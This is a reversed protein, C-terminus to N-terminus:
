SGAQPKVSSCIKQSISKYVNELQSGDPANFFTDPSSAIDRMLTLGRTEGFGFIGISYITVGLNKIEDIPNPNQLRPDALPGLDINGPINPLGDSVFILFFQRDPFVAKAQILTDRARQLGEITNTGGNPIIGNISPPIIDKVDKYFSVPVLTRTGIYSSFSEIGIVSEDSMAGTFALVATKLNNIKTSPMDMSGTVDLMMTVATVGACEKFGITRLQLNGRKEDLDKLTDEDIEYVGEPPESLQNKPLPDFGGTLLLGGGIIILIFGIFIGGAGSMIRGGFSSGFGPGSFFFGTRRRNEQAM